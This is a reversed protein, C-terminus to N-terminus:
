ISLKKVAASLGLWRSAAAQLTQPQGTTFLSVQGAALPAPLIEAPVTQV